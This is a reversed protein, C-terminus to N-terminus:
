NQHVNKKFSQANEGEKITEISTCLLASPVSKQWKLYIKKLDKVKCSFFSSKLNDEISVVM